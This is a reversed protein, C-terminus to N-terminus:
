RFRKGSASSLTSRLTTLSTGASAFAAAITLLHPSVLNLRRLLTELVM